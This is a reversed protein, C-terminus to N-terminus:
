PLQQAEFAADNRADTAEMDARPEAGSSQRAGATEGDRPRQGSRLSSCANEEDTGVNLLPVLAALPAAIVGLAVAAGARAAVPGGQVGVEPKRFTGRAYLPSRLTFVRLTKNQPRVDLDIVEKELSVTGEMTVIADETELVFSRTTMLGDKVAFDAVLCELMVQEDGFLKVFVANAVNLGAAEMLFRSITGRSLAFTIEGDSSGLLSAISDGRGRLRADGHLKGFSADMTRAGPFLEKLQLGRAASVVDAQLVESRGDIRLTSSLTGGAVGFNLPDLTLVRDQLLVHVELDDLPLDKERVIRRGKFHVDAEMLDWTESGIRAVPLAKDPPQRRREKGGKAAKGDKSEEDEVTDVGVLPGLDRLRLQDSAVSGSLLPRPARVRYEVTGRLDSEGVVGRFDEYRWHDEDGELMGVLRGATSFPPTTPLAVGFLANLDSLSSGALKLNVDISAAGQPVSMAGEVAIRTEGFRIEGQLPFPESGARLSLLDGVKGVGSVETDNYTGTSEWGMGYGGEGAQLSNFRTQMELRRQQDTMRVDVSRLAVSQLDVTWGKGDDRRAQRREYAWNHRGQSNKELIILADGIELRPIEVHRRILPLPNIAFSLQDIRAMEQRAGDFGAPNGAVINRVAIHPWPVAGRWDWDVELDGEITVPRQIAESAMGALWPRLRNWDFVAVGIVLVAILGSVGAATVLSIRAARRM